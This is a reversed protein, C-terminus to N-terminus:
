PFAAAYAGADVRPWSTKQRRNDPAKIKKELLLRCVLHRLSQLESTHEESRTSIKTISALETNVRLRVAAKALVPSLTGNLKVGRVLMWTCPAVLEVVVPVVVPMVVVPVVVVLPVLVVPVVLLLVVPADMGSELRPWRALESKEVMRGLASKCAVKLSVRVLTRCDGCIRETSPWFAMMFIPEFCGVALPLKPEVCPTTPAPKLGSTLVWNWYMSTPTFTSIVGWTCSLPSTERCTLRSMELTVPWTFRPPM